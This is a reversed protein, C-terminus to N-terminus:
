VCVCVCVCVFCMYVCVCVCVFVGIFCCPHACRNKFGPRLDPGLQTYM